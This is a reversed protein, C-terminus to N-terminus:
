ELNSFPFSDQIIITCDDCILSLQTGSFCIKVEVSFIIRESQLKVTDKQQERRTGTKTGTNCSICLAQKWKGPDESDMGVQGILVADLQGMFGCNSGM